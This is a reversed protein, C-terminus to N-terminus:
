ASLHKRRGDDYYRSGNARRAIPVLSRVRLKMKYSGDNSVKLSVNFVPVASLLLRKASQIMAVAPIINQSANTSFYQM